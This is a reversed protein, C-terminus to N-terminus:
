SKLLLKVKMRRHRQKRMDIPRPGSNQLFYGLKATGMASGKNWGGLSRLSFQLFSANVARYAGIRIPMHM